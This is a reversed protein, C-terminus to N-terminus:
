EGASLQRLLADVESDSLDQVDIDDAAPAQEEGQRAPAPAEDKAALDKAIESVLHDTTLDPRLLSMRQFGYGTAHELAVSLEVAMLSDFGLDPLPRNVDLSEPDVGLVGAIETAVINQLRALRQEPTDGANFLGANEQGNEALGKAGRESAEVMSFRQSGSISRSFKKLKGWDVVMAGLYPVGTRVGHGIALWAEDPYLPYVGQREFATRVSEDRAVYGTAGIVGWGLTLAPLGNARRHHALAELYENAAAYNAQDRNGILNSVSSYSVFFDLPQDLTTRHLNWAGDVKPMLVANLDELSMVRIPGDRMVMAAHVIGKLPPLDRGFRAVLAEVQHIDAVDCAVAAVQTGRARLRELMDKADPTTAGRRGVLVLHGAGNDALWEATALGFGTLGGTVLYSADRSLEIDARQPTVKLLQDTLSVVVKGIHNAKRFSNVTESIRYLPTMRYPVPALRGAEVLPLMETLLKSIYPPNSSSLVGLDFASVSIGKKLAGYDLQAGYHLNTLDILRGTAPPLLRINRENMKAPLTNLVVDVGRGGTHKLIEDAFAGSRSDGVYEIGLARLHRRKEESGATAFVTAGLAQAVQIAALGLGSAATHILITEGAELRAQKKLAHYASLYVVSFGAADEFSMNAPKRVLARAETNIVNNLGHVVLGMVDDGPALGEVGEGVAIVTGAGELGLEGSSADVLGHLLAFDKYNLGTARMRLQVEYPGPAGLAVEGFAIDAPASQHTQRLAFPVSVDDSHALHRHRVVRDVFRRNGRFATEMEKHPSMIERALAVIEDDRLDPSLDALYTDLDGHENMVVRTFGKVPTQTLAIQTVGGVTETGNTVVWLSPRGQWSRGILEQVTRQVRVCSAAAVQSPRIDESLLPRDSLCRLDVIVPALEGETQAEAIGQALALENEGGPAVVRVDWSRLIAALRDAVGLDDRLLVFPASAASQDREMPMSMDLGAASHPHLGKRAALVSQLKQHHTSRDDILATKEFGGQHLIALWRDGVPSTETAEAARSERASWKNMSNIAGFALECWPTPATMDVFAFLGGAVLLTKAQAVMAKKDIDDSLSLSAVVVDFSGPAFGQELLDLEADFIEFRMFAHAKFKQKAQGVSTNAADTFVYEVRETPLGHVLHSTLGGTGGNIELIRLVEGEPLHAVIEHVADALIQNYPRFTLSDAYLQEALSTGAPLIDVDALGDDRLLQALRSGSRQILMLEAHCNPHQKGVMSWLQDASVRDPQSCVRWEGREVSLLGSSALMALMREMFRQHRTSIHLDQMIQLTTRAATSQWNWGLDRLTEVTYAIAVRDLAPCAEELFKRHIHENGRTKQLSYLTEAIQAPEPMFAAPRTEPANGLPASVWVRDYLIGNETSKARMDADAFLQCTLAAVRVVPRGSEDALVIDAIVRRETRSVLTCHAWAIAGTNDLVDIQDIGVPLFAGDGPLGALLQFGADLIAPHLIYNALDQEIQTPVVIRGLAEDDGSWATEINQFLPGYSLGGTGFSEYFSAKDQVKPLRAQIGAIDLVTEAATPEASTLAGSAHRLWHQEDSKGTLSFIDFTQDANISIQLNVRANEAFVLPAEIKFKAITAASADFTVAKAASLAMEVYGAAPFVVSGQVRHDHLYGPHKSTLESRWAPHPTSQRTGLLPHDPQDGEVAFGTRNKRSAATETWFPIRQWPYNPLGLRMSTKKFLKNFNIVYGRCHLDGVAGWLTTVDDQHRRLLAIAAGQTQNAALCEGISSALVPHAGIEVFFQESGNALASMAEAFAVPERINDFWYHANLSTGDIQAGTVTSVLPTHTAKPAIGALAKEFPVRIEDMVPSHYPVEVNLLRAFINRTEFETRLAELKASDGALTVAGPSNIAAISVSTEMGKIHPMVEAASLGVALMGGRGALESQLRSRHFCISAADKLSMAGAICAAAIEGISHGVVKAPVIGVSELLAALGMQLSFIAPQAHHTKDIESAGEDATLLERLSWEDTLEAFLGDLEDIKAAFVPENELLGRGMAWWQQGMGSCVFVLESNGDGRATGSTLGPRRSRGAFAELLEVGHEFDRAAATMRFAHHERGLALNATVAEFHAPDPEQSRFYEAHQRANALLADESRASLCVLAPRQGIQDADAAEPLDPARGMILHANTGGFGFSNIGAFRLGQENPQWPELATPVRLRLQEFPIDPNPTKFHLNPPISGHKQMLAVKILGAVGAASETHGFNSKVSGMVCPTRKPDVESLVGGLAGAEIPDGVPTGTGHAEIYSIDLAAIDACALADRMVIQQSEASPVTIGKSHGDQNVASGRIVAYVPDGDQLAKALPKLVVMGAGDARAYGNARADFSKCRGDPSLMSANCLAMTMQPSLQLNVGGAVAIEAEGAHMSRCALHVAVLSSSCATDVVMSPGMFDFVYSLRNAAITTSMGTASHSSYAGSETPQMHLNEYDHTFLGVFIGVKKHAWDDPPIGADEFAEWTTELLLRQQPDMFAAERPSIGFFQPDFGTVDNLFGGRKTYLKGEVARNEDYYKDVNWRSAPVEGTGDGGAVLLDWFSQPSVIGGPFRCGIGIIAIPEYRESGERLSSRSM